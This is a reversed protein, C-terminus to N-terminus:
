NIVTLEAIGRFNRLLKRLQIGLMKNWRVSALMMVPIAYKSDSSRRVNRRINKHYQISPIITEFIRADIWTEKSSQCVFKMLGALADITGLIIDFAQASTSSLTMVNSTEHKGLFFTRKFAVDTCKISSKATSVGFFNFDLALFVGRNICQISSYPLIDYLLSSYESIFSM